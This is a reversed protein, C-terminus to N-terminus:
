CLVLVSVSCLETGTALEKLQQLASYNEAVVQGDAHAAAARIREKLQQLRDLGLENRELM